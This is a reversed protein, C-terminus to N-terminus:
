LGDVWDTGVGGAALGVAGGAVATPCVGLWGVEVPSSRFWSRAATWCAPQPPQWVMGPTGPALPLTPGFRAPTAERVAIAPPATGFVPGSSRFRHTSFGGATLGPVRMGLRPSLSWCAVRM